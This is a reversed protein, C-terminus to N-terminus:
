SGGLTVSSCAQACTKGVGVGHYLLMSRYPTLPSMFAAIFAQSASLDFRSDSDGCARSADASGSRSGRVLRGSRLERKALVGADARAPYPTFEAAGGMAKQKSFM